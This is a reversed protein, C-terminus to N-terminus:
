GAASTMGPPVVIFVREASQLPRESETLPIGSVDGTGVIRGANPPGGEREVYPAAYFEGPRITPAAARAQVQAFAFAPAMSAGVMAIAMRSSRSITTKTM